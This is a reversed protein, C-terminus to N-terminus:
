PNLIINIYELMDMINLTGDGNIDGSDAGADYAEEAVAENDSTIDVSEAGADYAEEAVAQNDSTIDVSEAGAEYSVDDYGDENTDEYSCEPQECEGWASGTLNCLNAGSLDAEELWAGSLDAGELDCDQMDHDHSDDYYEQWNSENCQSYGVGLLMTIILINKM